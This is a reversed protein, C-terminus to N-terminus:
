YLCWFSNRKYQLKSVKVEASIQKNNTLNFVDSIYIQLIKPMKVTKLNLELFHTMEGPNGIYRYVMNRFSNKPTWEKNSGNYIFYVCFQKNCKVSQLFIFSYSNCPMHENGLEFLISHPQVQYFSWNTFATFRLLRGQNHPNMVAYLYFQLCFASDNVYFM